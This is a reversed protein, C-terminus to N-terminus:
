TRLNLAPPKLRGCPKLSRGEQFGFRTFHDKALRDLEATSRGGQEDIPVQSYINDRVDENATLYNATDFGTPVGVSGSRNEGGGFKQFHDAANSFQGMSIAKVVDPNNALYNQENFGQPLNFGGANFKRVYGGSAMHMAKNVYSHMRQQAAPNSQLYAEFQDAPGTYGMSEQIKKMGEPKFGQFMQM